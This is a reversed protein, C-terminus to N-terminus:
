LKVGSARTIFKRVETTPVKGQEKCKAQFARLVEVPVRLAFFPNGETTKKIKM